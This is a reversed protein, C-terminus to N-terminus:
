SKSLQGNPFKKGSKSNETIVPYELFNMVQLSVSGRPLQLTICSLWSCFM